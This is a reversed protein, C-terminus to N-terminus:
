AVQAVVLVRVFGTYSDDFNQDAYRCIVRVRATPGPTAIVDTFVEIVNIHHDANSYDFLFSQIACDARLVSSGFLASDEEVKTGSGGGIPIAVTRFDIPM